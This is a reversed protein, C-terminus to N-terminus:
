RYTAQVRGWTAAAASAALLVLALALALRSSDGFEEFRSARMRM